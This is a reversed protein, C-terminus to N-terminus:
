WDYAIGINLSPFHMVYNGSFAGYIGANVHFQEKIKYVLKLGPSVYEQDNVYRGTQLLTQDDRVKNRLSNKSEILAMIWLNKIQKGIELNWYFEDSYDNTRFRPGAEATYYWTDWSRGLLIAPHIVWTQYGTALGTNFDTAVGPTEIKLRASLKTTGNRILYKGALSINGVNVLKGAPLTDKFTNSKFIEDGTSLFKLPISTIVTIKHSIGYEGYFGLTNDTVNRHLEIREPIGDNFLSNSKLYAFSLQAYGGGKEQVWVGASLYFSIQFILLILIIRM